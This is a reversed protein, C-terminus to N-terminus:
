EIQFNTYFRQVVKLQQHVTGSTILENALTIGEDVTSVQGAVWFGLGANFTVLPMLCDPLTTKPEAGVLQLFWSANNEMSFDIPEVVEAGDQLALCQWPQVSGNEILFGSTTETPLAEDMGSASRIILAKKLTLQNNLSDALLPMMRDSSCGIVRFAPQIPNLLPGIFNFITPKGFQKRLHALAKLSPYVDPAFLFGLGTEQVAKGAQASLHKLPLGLSALFDFSGSPSTAAKNGFKLIPVGGAALVFAVTTSTNFSARGSGGTGCCDLLTVSADTKLQAVSAPIVAQAQLVQLLLAVTEASVTEPQLLAELIVFAEAHSCEGQLFAQWDTLTLTATNIL